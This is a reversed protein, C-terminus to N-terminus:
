LPVCQIFTQCFFLFLVVMHDLLKVEPYKGSAFLFALEFLVLVLNEFSYGRKFFSILEMAAVFAFLGFLIRFPVGDFTYLSILAVVFLALGVVVRVKFNKDM